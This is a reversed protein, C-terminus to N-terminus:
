KASNLKNGRRRGQQQWDTPALVRYVKIVPSRRAGGGFKARAAKWVTDQSATRSERKLDEIFAAMWARIKTERTPVPRTGHDAPTERPWLSECTGRDVLLLRSAPKRRAPAPDTFEKGGIRISFPPPQEKVTTFDDLAHGAAWDIEVRLWHPHRKPPL